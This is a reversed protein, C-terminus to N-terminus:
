FTANDEVVEAKKGADRIDQDVVYVRINQQDSNRQMGSTELRNLDDQENLLPSVSTMTPVSAQPVSVSAGSGASEKTTSKIKAITAIGTATVAAAAAAGLAPGVYPIGAMSKYADIAGTLTSITTEMISLVKQEESGEEMLDSLSGFVSAATDLSARVALQRDKKKQEETEKTHKVDLNQLEQESKALDNEYKEREEATGIFNELFTKQLAIKDEILKREIEYEAEATEQATLIRDGYKLDFQAQNAEDVAEQMADKLWGARRKAEEKLEEINYDLLTKFAGSLFDDITKQINSAESRMGDKVGKAIGSTINEGVKAGAEETKKSSKMREEITAIMNDAIERGQEYNGRFEIAKQGISKIAEFASSADEKVKDFNGTFVDKIVSGLGKFAEITARIPALLFNGIANGVGVAGSVINKFATIAKEKFEDMDEQSVGVINLLDQWHAVLEGVAVILLGIGTSALAKKVGSLGAVATQNVSKIVPLLNKVTGSLDGIPGDLNKVGDLCKDFAQEFANAYDGVSRHFDGTSQDLEKLQNNIDLIQQGLEARRAEDGTAKWEKKLESMTKTLQNYSGEAQDVDYKGAKMVENLKDQENKIEQSIKKYEESTEDLQLLSGRLDDIHKKYDKLSTATNGLDVTIVKKIETNSDM